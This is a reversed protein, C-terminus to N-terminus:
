ARRLAEEHLTTAVDLALLAAPEVAAAVPESLGMAMDQDDVARSPECGVIRVPRPTGGLARVLRLVKEPEMGHAELTAVDAPELADLRPEIVSLTGPAHGRPVLDVLVAADHAADLLAYALDFGRIGFDVVQLWPPMARQALCRVVEVGFADDGMFINGVGAVLVSV